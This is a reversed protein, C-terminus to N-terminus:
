ISSLIKIEQPHNQIVDADVIFNFHQQNATNNPGFLSAIKCPATKNKGNKEFVYDGMPELGHRLRKLTAEAATFSQDIGIWRRNLDRAAQLTTGSGCFPDLVIDNPDSSGQVIMRLMDINKETPYGTIKISQHHADRYQDWYDTLPLMKNEALYVKRRPNGNKSWHIDGAADLEDLKAPILQWHKGPPPNMGKWQKGTEGKRVGPAHIPVLKYRGKFDAKPYEKSIWDEKAPVSPM